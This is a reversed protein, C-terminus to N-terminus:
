MHCDFRANFRFCSLLNSGAVHFTVSIPVDGQLKKLTSSCLFYRALSHIPPNCILYAFIFHFGLKGIRM